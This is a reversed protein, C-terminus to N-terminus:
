LEVPQECEAASACIRVAALIVDPLVFQLAMPIETSVAIAFAFFGAPRSGRTSWAPINEGPPVPKSMGPYTEYTVACCARTYMSEGYLAYWCIMPATPLPVVTVEASACAWINRAARLLLM